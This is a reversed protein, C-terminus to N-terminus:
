ICLKLTPSQQIDNIYRPIDNSENQSQDKQMLVGNVVEVVPLVLLALLHESLHSLFVPFGFDLDCGRQGLDVIVDRGLRVAVAHQLPLLPV